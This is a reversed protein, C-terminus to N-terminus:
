SHCPSDGLRHEPSSPPLAAGNDMWLRFSMRSFLESPPVGPPTLRPPQRRIRPLVEGLFWSNHTILLARVEGTVFYPSLLLRMSEDDGAYREHIARFRAREDGDPAVAKVFDALTPIFRRAFDPLVHDHELVMKTRVQKGEVTLTPGVMPLIVRRIGWLTHLWRHRNDSCLEKTADVASHLALYDRPEGGHRRASLQAHRQPDM